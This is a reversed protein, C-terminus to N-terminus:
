KTKDASGGFLFDKLTFILGTFLGFINSATMIVFENVQLGNQLIEYSLWTQVGGFFAFGALSFYAVVIQLHKNGNERAHKRDEVELKYFELYDTTYGSRAEKIQAIAENDGRGKAMDLASDVVTNVIGLPPYISAAIDTAKDLVEPAVQKIVGFLASDKFKKKEKASM